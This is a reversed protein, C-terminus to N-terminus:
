GEFSDYYVQALGDNAKFFLNYLEAGSSKLVADGGADGEQIDADALLRPVSDFLFFAFILLGSL